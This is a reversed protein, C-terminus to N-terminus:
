SLEDCPRTISTGIRHVIICRITSETMRVTMNGPRSTEFLACILQEAVEELTCVLFFCKTLSRNFLAFLNRICVKALTSNIMPWAITRATQSTLHTFLFGLYRFFRARALGMPRRTSMGVPSHTVSAPSGAKGAMSTSSVPEWKCKNYLWQSPRM